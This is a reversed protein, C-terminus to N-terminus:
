GLSESHFLFNIKTSSGKSPLLTALATQLTSFKSFMLIFNLSAHCVSFKDGLRSLMLTVQNLTTKSVVGIVMKNHLHLISCSCKGAKVVEVVAFRAKILALGYVLESTDQVLLRYAISLSIPISDLQRGRKINKLPLATRSRTYITYM